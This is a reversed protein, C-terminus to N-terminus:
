GASHTQGDQVEVVGEGNFGEASLFGGGVLGGLDVLGEVM